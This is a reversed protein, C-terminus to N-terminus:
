ALLRTDPALSFLLSPDSPAPATLLCSHCRRVITSRGRQDRGAVRQALTRVLAGRFERRRPRLFILSRVMLSATAPGVDAPAAVAASLSLAFAGACTLLHRGPCNQRSEVRVNDGGCVSHSVCWFVDARRRDPRCWQAAADVSHSHDVLSGKWHRPDKQATGFAGLNQHGKKPSDLM